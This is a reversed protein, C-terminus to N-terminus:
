SQSGQINASLKHRQQIISFSFKFLDILRDHYNVCTQCTNYGNWKADKWYMDYRYLNYDILRNIELKTKRYYLLPM